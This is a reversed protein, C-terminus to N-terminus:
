RSSLDARPVRITIRAGRAGNTAAITGGHATVIRHVISLGLGTGKGPDKTTFFPEFIRDGLDAPIGPGEDTVTLEVADPLADCTVDIRGGRPSADLANRVLNFLVQRWESADGTIAPGGREAGISLRVGADKMQHEFLPAIELIETGLWVTERRGADHRAFRLLRTTIDRARMAEKRVIQLYERLREEEGTGGERLLGEACAAISALPNNIEHAIGAALTGLQALQASRLVERSREEVRRELDRRNEQLQHAMTSFAAALDGLEDGARVRLRVDDRGSGLAQAGDRLAQVPVLVRRHLLWALAAVTAASAVGLLMMFQSMADSRRDLEGGISRSEDEVLHALVEAGHLAVALPERLAGMAEDRRLLDAITDLSTRTRDLAGTEARTHEEESPDDGRHFRAFTAAATRQHHEVDALVLPHTASRAEPVAEVWQEIGHLEDVLSRTLSVERLEEFMRQLDHHVARADFVVLWLGAVVVLCLPLFALALTQRLSRRRQPATTTSDTDTTM